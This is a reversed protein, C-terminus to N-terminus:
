TCKFTFDRSLSAWTDGATPIHWWQCKSFQFTLVIALLCMLCFLTISTIRICVIRCAFIFNFYVYIGILNLLNTLQIWNNIVSIQLFHWLYRFALWRLGYGLGDLYKMADSTHEIQCRYEWLGFIENSKAIGPVEAVVCFVEVWRLVISSCHRGMSETAPWNTPFTDGCYHRRVFEWGFRPCNWVCHRRPTPQRAACVKRDSWVRFLTPPAHWIAPVTRHSQLPRRLRHLSKPPRLQVAASFLFMVWPWKALIACNTCFQRIDFIALMSKSESRTIQSAVVLLDWDCREVVREAAVRRRNATVRLRFPIMPTSWCIYRNVLNALALAPMESSKSAQSAHYMKAAVVKSGHPRNKSLRNRTHACPLAAAPRRVPHVADLITLANEYGM